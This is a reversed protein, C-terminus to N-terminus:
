SFAVVQKVCVTNPDRCYDDIQKKMIKITNGTTGDTSQIMKNIADEIWEEVIPNCSQGELYGEDNFNFDIYKMAKLTMFFSIMAYPANISFIEEEYFVDISKGKITMKYFFYFYEILSFPLAVFFILFDMKKIDEKDEESVENIIKQNDKTFFQHKLDKIEKNVTEIRSPIEKKISSEISSSVSQIDITSKELASQTKILDSFYRNQKQDTIIAFSIALLALILSSFTLAFSIIDVLNPVDYYSSAIILIICGILIGIIYKYHLRNM